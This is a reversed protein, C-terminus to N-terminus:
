AAGGTGTLFGTAQFYTTWAAQADASAREIDPALEAAVRGREALDAANVRDRLRSLVATKAHATERMADLNTSKTM